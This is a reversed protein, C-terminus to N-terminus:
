KLQQLERLLTKDIQIPSSGGTDMLLIDQNPARMLKGIFATGDQLFVRSQKGYSSNPLDNTSASSVVKKQKVNYDWFAQPGGFQAWMLSVEEPVKLDREVGDNFAVTGKLPLGQNDVYILFSKEIGLSTLPSTITM